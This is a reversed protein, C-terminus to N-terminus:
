WPIEGRRRAYYSAEAAAITAPTQGLYQIMWVMMECAEEADGLNEICSFDFTGDDALCHKYSGAM